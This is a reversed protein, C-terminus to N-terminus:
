FKFNVMRWIWTIGIAWLVFAGGIAFIFMPDDQVETFYGPNLFSLVAIMAFPLGGVVFCSMRGESSIAFVKKRMTARERIVNSLVDLIEALNGGTERQVELTATLFQFEPSTYRESIERMAAGRDRGYNIEDIAIGFETGIPDQLERAVMEIAVPTPHGAQLGRVMIDIANPLQENFKKQRGSAKINVFLFPVIIGIAFSRILAVVGSDRFLLISGFYLVLSAIMMIAVLQSPAIGLGSRWVIKKLGPVATSIMQSLFGGAIQKRFLEPNLSRGASEALLKMRRNAAKEQPNVSRTFLYVGEVAFIVSFFVVIQIVMTVTM